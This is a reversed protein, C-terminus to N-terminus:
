RKTRTSLTWCRWVLFGVNRRCGGSRARLWRELWGWCRAQRDVDQGCSLGPLSKSIEVLVHRRHTEYTMKGGGPVMSRGSVLKIGNLDTYRPMTVRLCACRTPLGSAMEDLERREAGVNLKRAWLAKGDACPSCMM